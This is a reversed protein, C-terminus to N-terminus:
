IIVCRKRKTKRQHLEVAAKAAAKFVEDLGSQALASCEFFAEARIARALDKGQATTVVEEESKGRRLDTKLGVLVIPKKEGGHHTIDPLWFSLIREFSTVNDVSYCLVFVHAKPYFMHRLDTFDDQGATDMISFTFDFYENKFKNAEVYNEFVTPVYMAPFGGQIYTTLLCTKGVAGDGLLAIVLSDMAM